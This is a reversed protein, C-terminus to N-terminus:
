PLWRFSSKLNDFPKEAEKWSEEPASFSVRYFSKGSTLFYSEDWRGDEIKGHVRVAKRGAFDVTSQKYGSPYLPKLAEPSVYSEFTGQLPDRVVAFTTLPLRSLTFSVTGSQSTEKLEMMTWASHIRFHVKVIRNDYEKWEKNNPDPVLTSVPVAASDEKPNTQDASPQSPLDIKPSDARAFSAILCILIGIRKM